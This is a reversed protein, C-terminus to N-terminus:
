FRWSGGTSGSIAKLTRQQKSQMLDKDISILRGGQQPDLKKAIQTSHGAGGATGDVYIGNPKINLGEITEWLLVSVHQFDM